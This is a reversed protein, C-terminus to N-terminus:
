CTKIKMSQKNVDMEVWWLNVCSELIKIWTKSGEFIQQNKIHITDHTVKWSINNQLPIILTHPPAINVNAFHFYSNFLFFNKRLCKFIYINRNPRTHQEFINLLNKRQQHWLYQHILKKGNLSMSLARFCQALENCSCLITKLIQFMHIKCTSSQLLPFFIFCQENVVIWALGSLIELTTTEENFRKSFQWLIFDLSQVKNKNTALIPQITM